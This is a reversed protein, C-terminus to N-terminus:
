MTLSLLKLWGENIDPMIVAESLGKVVQRNISLAERLLTLAFLAESETGAVVPADM